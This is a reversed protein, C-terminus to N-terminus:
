SVHMLVIPNTRAAYVALALAYGLDDHSGRSHTFSYGGLRNRTAEICNLSSFLELNDPLVVRQRELLIKLNSLLQEKSSSTFNFGSVPLGLEKCHEIIPNGLGTSDMLVRRFHLRKHIDAVLATFGTYVNSNESAKSALFKRALVVKFIIKKEKEGEKPAVATREVVVLAAPDSMGGPDYGAFLEGGPDVKGALIDCYGCPTSECIHMSNRLMPSPFYTKDDDVFEALYEQRFKMEGAEERAEQIEEPTVTPNDLTTFHYKSWHNSHFARYFYHEKDAPTSVMVLTGHTTILMPLAVNVIVDEPVFAAEDILVFHATYARLSDGTRGCPLAVIQSDNSFQIITRTKRVVSGKLLDSKSIFRLIKDFTVLSQRHTRSIILATTDPNMAVFWIVRAAMMLSKGVQRGACIIIRKSRDELFKEQYPFPKLDLLAECFRSPSDIIKRLTEKTDSDIMEEKDSTEENRSKVTDNTMM